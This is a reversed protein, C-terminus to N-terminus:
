SSKQVIMICDAVPRLEGESPVNCVHLEGTKAPTVVTTSGGGDLNLVDTVDLDLNAFLVAIDAYTAGASSETRGDVCILVLTGDACYGISTRPEAIVSQSTPLYFKGAEILKRHGGVGYLINDKYSKQYGETDSIVYKGDKTIGFWMNSHQIHAPDNKSPENYVVGNVIQMGYPKMTGAGPTKGDSGGFYSFFGANTAVLVQKGSEAVQEPVTKATGSPQVYTTFEADANPAVQTVYVKVPKGDRNRYLQEKYTVGKALTYVTESEFQLGSEVEGGWVYDVSEGAPITCGDQKADSMYMSFLRRMATEKLVKTDGDLFVRCFQADSECALRYRYGGYSNYDRVGVYFATNGQYASNAVVPLEIGFNNKIYTAMSRATPDNKNPAVISFESLLHGNVKYNMNFDGTKQSDTDTSGATSGEPQSLPKQGCSGLPVLLLVGLFASIIMKLLRSM